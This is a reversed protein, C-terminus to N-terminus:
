NKPTRTKDSGSPVSINARQGGVSVNWLVLMRRYPMAPYSLNNSFWLIIDGTTQTGNQREM